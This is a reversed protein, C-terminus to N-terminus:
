RQGDLFSMFDQKTRSFSFAKELKWYNKRDLAISYAWKAFELKGNDFSLWQMMVGVQETVVTRRTLATKVLKLRDGDSFRDDVRDKLDDMDAASFVNRRDNYRDGNNRHGYKSRDIPDQPYRVQNNDRDDVIPDTNIRVTKKSRDVIAYNMTGPEINVIGDYVMARNSFGYSTVTFVKIRHRGPKLDNITILKAKEDYSQQDIRIMIPSNDNLRVKLVSEFGRAMLGTLATMLLMVTLLVKKM